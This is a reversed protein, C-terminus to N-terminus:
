FNADQTPVHLPSKRGLLWATEGLSLPKASPEQIDGGLAEHRDPLGPVGQCHLRKENGQCVNTM